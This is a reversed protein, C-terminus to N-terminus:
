WELEKRDTYFLGNHKSAQDCPMTELWVVTDAGQAATKPPKEWGAMDSKCWGPCMNMVHIGRSALDRALIRGIVIMGLKSMGYASNSFGAEQHKNQKAATVFENMLNSLEDLTKVNKFLEQLQASVQGLKGSGSAVNIIRGGDAILPGLQECVSLTGAYNIEVSVEAQEAFPETAAQKYAFGANNILSHFQGYEKVIHDKLSMVSQLNTIDLEHFRPNLGQTRLSQLSQEARNAERATMYVIAKDGYHECLQKVIEFGIGRYSGTVIIVRQSM